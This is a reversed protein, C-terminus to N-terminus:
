RAAAFKLEGFQRSFGAAARQLTRWAGPASSMRQRHRLILIPRRAAAHHLWRLGDATEYGPFAFASAELIRGASRDEASCPRASRRDPWGPATGPATLRANVGRFQFRSTASNLAVPTTARFTSPAPSARTPM